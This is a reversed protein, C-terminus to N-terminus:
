IGTGDEELTPLEGEGEAEAEDEGLDEPLPADHDATEASEASGEGRLGVQFDKHPYDRALRDLVANVYQPSEDTSFLRALEIYENITVRSPIDEFSRFECLAMRLCLRDVVPMRELSWHQLVPRILRDLEHRDRWALRALQRAFPGWGRRQRPDYALVRREVEEPDEASDAFELAFLLQLARQRALRRIKM